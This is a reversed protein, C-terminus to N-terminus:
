YDFAKWSRSTCLAFMKENEYEDTDFLFEVSFKLGIDDEDVGARDILDLAIGRAKYEIAKKRDETFRVTPETYVEVTVDVGDVENKSSIKAKIDFSLCFGESRAYTRAIIEGGLCSTEFFNELKNWNM